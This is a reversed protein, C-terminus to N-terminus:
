NSGSVRIRFDVVFGERLAESKVGEPPAPLPSAQEVARLVSHDFAADGSRKVLSKSVVAGSANIKLYVRATLRQGEGGSHTRVWNRIIKSRVQSQYLAFGPDRAQTGQPNGLAATGASAQGPSGATHSAEREQREREQLESDIGSLASEIKAADPAQIKETRVQPKPAKPQSKNGIPVAKAPPPKEATKPKAQPQPKVPVPTPKAVPPPPTAKPKPATIEEPPSAEIPQVPTKPIGPPQIPSGTPTGLRPQLRVM